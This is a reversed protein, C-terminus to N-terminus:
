RHHDGAVTRPDVWSGIGVLAQVSVILQAVEAPM